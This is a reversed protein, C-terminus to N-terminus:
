RKHHPRERVTNCAKNLATLMHIKFKNQYYNLVPSMSNQGIVVYKAPLATLTLARVDANCRPCTCVNFRKMTDELDQQKLLEEMVNIFRYEESTDEEILNELETDLETDLEEILDTDLEKVPDIDAQPGNQVSPAPPIQVPAQPQASVPPASQEDPEQSIQHDLEDSLSSLIEQSIRDNRSGEDVVTVKKPVTTEPAPGNTLLDLIHSTKNTKKAM